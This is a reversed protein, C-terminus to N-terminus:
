KDTFCSKESLGILCWNRYYHVGGGSAITTACHNLVHSTNLLDHTQKM